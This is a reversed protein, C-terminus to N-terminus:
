NSGLSTSANMGMERDTFPSSDIYTVDNDNAPQANAVSVMLLMPVMLILLMWLVQLRNNMKM